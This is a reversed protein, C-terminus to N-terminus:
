TTAGLAPVRQLYAHLAASAGLRRLSRRHLEQRRAALEVRVREPNATMRMEDLVTHVKDIDIRERDLEAHSQDLTALATELDSEHVARMIERARKWGHGEALQRAVVLAEAHDSTFIRYGSATREAPPLIGLEVYNRVQQVSIGAAQALDTARLRGDPSGAPRQKGSV